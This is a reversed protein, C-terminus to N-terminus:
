VTTLDAPEGTHEDLPRVQDLDFNDIWTQWGISWSVPLQLTVGDELLSVMRLDGPRWQEDILVEVLPRDAPSDVHNRRVLDM